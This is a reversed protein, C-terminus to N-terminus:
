SVKLTKRSGQHSKFNIRRLRTSNRSIIRRSVGKHSTHTFMGKKVSLVKAGKLRRIRNTVPSSREEFIGSALLIDEKSKERNWIGMVNKRYPIHYLPNASHYHAVAKYWSAHENKLGNLFRAAYAVNKSPDFADNLNRFAHPHHYLNVQMCGVDISKIGQFQMNRVASVAAEKTPFHYGQGEANVTWPWAILRGTRDRRGSEVKSIAQLLGQPINHQKEYQAVYVACGNLSSSYPAGYSEGKLAFYALAMWLFAILLTLKCLPWLFTPM